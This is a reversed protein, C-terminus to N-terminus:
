ELGNARAVQRLIGPVDVGDEVCAVLGQLAARTYAIRADDDETAMGNETVLVPVRAHEAALRVSHGLAEPYVEWGTQMTPAGEPPPVNGDPGILARSCTQVGVFDDEASVALWDTLARRRPEECRQDGGLAPQLDILALASGVKVDGSGSTIAERAYQHATAMRELDGSGITSTSDDLSRTGPRTNNEESDCRTPPRTSPSPCSLGM